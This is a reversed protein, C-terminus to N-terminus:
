WNHGMRASNLGAVTPLIQSIVRNWRTVPAATVYVVDYPNLQFETGLIYNTPNTVDLQYVTAVKDVTRGDATEVQGGNGRYGRIVFIGTADAALKDLGGSASLAETLTMGNRGLKLDQPRTVEGLVFVKQADNRPVYIIDGNYLLRNQSLDGRQMLASLSVTEDVGKHTIVVNNWDADDSLGGSQNIADLLTLPTNTIPQTGQNKVEGTVYVKQSQYAAVSVDVQPEFIYASILNTIKQRIQQVTLGAVKLKGVYPYFITGDAHVQNGNEVSSRGAGAPTTLEPHDWVTVSLVDGVGVVYQYGNMKRTLGYNSQANLSGSQMQRVLQPTILYADISHELDLEEGVVEANKYRLPSHSSPLLVSCGSLTLVLSGTIFFKILKNM